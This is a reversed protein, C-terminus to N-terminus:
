ESSKSNPWPGVFTCRLPCTLRSAALSLPPRETPVLQVCLWFQSLARTRDGLRSTPSWLPAGSCLEPQVKIGWFLSLTREPM